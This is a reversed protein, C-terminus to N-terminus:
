MLEGDKREHYTKYALYYFLLTPVAHLLIAGANFYPFTKVVEVVLLILAITGGILFLIRFKPNM